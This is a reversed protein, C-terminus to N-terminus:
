RPGTLAFFGMGVGWGAVTITASWLGAGLVDWCLFRRPPFGAAGYLAPSATGLGVIFRSVLLYISAYRAIAHQVRNARARWEPHRDLVTLGLRRGTRFWLQSWAISGLAGCVIVWPLQLTDRQAVAGAALLTAEGEVFAGAVIALYGWYALWAHNM